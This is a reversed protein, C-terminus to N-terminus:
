TELVSALIVLEHSLRHMRFLSGVIQLLLYLRQGRMSLPLTGGECFLLITCEFRQLRGSGIM